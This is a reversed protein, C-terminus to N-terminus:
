GDLHAALYSRLASSEFVSFHRVGPWLKFAASPIAHALAEGMAPPTAYDEEGTVVLTRATIRGVFPRADFAGLARCAQAHAEKSTRVFIDVVRAVEAPSRERFSETFWRQTQFPLLEARAKQEAARAREEWADAAQPGYWATTDVLALNRVLQPHAAAVTMAIGGGMSMGAMDCREIGLAAMLEVVDDALDAIAFPAGNWASDGHGRADVAIVDRRPGIEPLAVQWMQGSLALSHLLVLPVGSGSRRLYAQRGWPMAIPDARELVATM